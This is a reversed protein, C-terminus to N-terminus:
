AKQQKGARAASPLVWKESPFDTVEISGGRRLELRDFLRM